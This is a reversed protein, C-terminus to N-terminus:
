LGTVMGPGRLFKVYNALKSSEIDESELALYLNKIAAKFKFTKRSLSLIRDREAANDANSKKNQTDSLVLKIYDPIRPKNDYNKFVDLSDVSHKFRELSKNNVCRTDYINFLIYLAAVLAASEYEKDAIWEEVLLSDNKQENGKEYKKEQIIM